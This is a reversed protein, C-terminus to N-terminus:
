HNSYLWNVRFPNIVSLYGFFFFSLLTTHKRVHSQTHIQVSVILHALGGVQWIQVKPGQLQTQLNTFITGVQFGILCLLTFIGFYSQVM